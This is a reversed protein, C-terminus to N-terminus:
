SSMVLEFVRFRVNEFYDSEATHHVASDFQVICLWFLFRQSDRTAKIPVILLFGKPTFVDTMFFFIQLLFFNNALDLIKVGQHWACHPTSNKSSQSWIDQRYWFRIQFFVKAQKDPAWITEFWSLFNDWM